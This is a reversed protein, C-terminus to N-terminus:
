RMEMAQQSRHMWNTFNEMREGVMSRWQFIGSLNAAGSCIWSWVERYTYNQYYGFGLVQKGEQAWVTNELTQAIIEEQSSVKVPAVMTQKLGQSPDDETKKRSDSEQSIKRVIEPAKPPGPKPVAPKEPIKHTKRKEEFGQSTPGSEQPM